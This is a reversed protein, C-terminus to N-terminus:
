WELPIFWYGVFSVINLLMAVVTKPDQCRRAALFGVFFFAPLVLCTFSFFLLPM